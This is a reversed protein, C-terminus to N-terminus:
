ILVVRWIGNGESSRVERDYSGVVEGGRMWM